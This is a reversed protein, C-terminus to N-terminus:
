CTATASTTSGCYYTGPQLDSTVSATVTYNGAASVDVRYLDTDGYETNNAAVEVLRSRM